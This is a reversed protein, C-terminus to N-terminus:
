LIKINKPYTNALDTLLSIMNTILTLTTVNNKLVTIELFGADEIYSIAEKDFSLIANVTTIVISSCASCVIDQGYKAFNAHGTVKIKKYLNGEKVIGVKIM